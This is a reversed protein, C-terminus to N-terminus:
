FKQIKSARWQADFKIHRGISLMLFMTWDTGPRVDFKKHRTMQTFARFFFQRLTVNVCPMFVSRAWECEAGGGGCRDKGPAEAGDGQEGGAKSAAEGAHLRAKERVKKM